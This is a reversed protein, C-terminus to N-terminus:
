VFLIFGAVAVGLYLLLTMVLGAILSAFAFTDRSM